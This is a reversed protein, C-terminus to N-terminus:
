SIPSRRMQWLYKRRASELFVLIGEETYDPYTWDLPHFKGKQFILTLDAYIGHQLYIRHSYNKGTALVFHEALLYGPDINVCRRKERALSNEIRNTSLKIAPISDQGILDNFAFMRRFLPRGMEPIYYDTHHFSLWPSISDPQGFCACLDEAVKEIINKQNVICGVILKAPKPRQPISM